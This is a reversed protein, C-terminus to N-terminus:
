VFCCFLRGDLICHSLFSTFVRRLEVTSVGGSTSHIDYNSSAHVLERCVVKVGIIELVVAFVDLSRAVDKKYRLIEHTTNNRCQDLREIAIEPGCRPIGETSRAEAM